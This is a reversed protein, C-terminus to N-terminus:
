ALLWLIRMRAVSYTNEIHDAGHGTSPLPGISVYESV